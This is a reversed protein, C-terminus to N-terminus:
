RMVPSPVFSTHFGPHVPRRLAISAIPGSRVRFADFLVLSTTNSAAHFNECIVVAEEGQKPNAIFCPEGCLYVGPPATYIDGVGGSQWSGHALQDFFKRGPKARQSMGLLWFDTYASGARAVDIAPFDQGQTYDLVQTDVVARGELDVTYRVPCCRPTSAFLDPIPQYQPYVPADLLLVDVLLRGGTEFCNIFHLCYGGGVEVTFPAAKCGFRPVILIRSGLAPEWSLSEMISAGDNWFREFKMLFPSLFFVLRNSTFGFDHMSYPYPLPYRSRHLLDGASGFEYANLAPNKPSFAIGFNLLGRDLKAHASFPSVENLTGNFDYEGLTALSVPDLEYPLTQEGMALLRGAYPYISVNVPPELMVNRRLCDGVFTTGFARYLFRGAAQEAQLKHTEVFRNTFQMGGESFCLSCAMGDGDLWHQHRVGAREFRAPGNIYWSGRLWEPVRGHAGSIDYSDETEEFLFWSELGPALDAFGPNGTACGSGSM